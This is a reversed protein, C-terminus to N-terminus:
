VSLESIIKKTAQKTQKNESRSCLWVQENNNRM